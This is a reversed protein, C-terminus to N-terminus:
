RRKPKANGKIGATRELLTATQGTIQLEESEQSDSLDSSGLSQEDVESDPLLSKGREYLNSSNPLQEQDLENLSEFNLNPVVPGLAMATTVSASM